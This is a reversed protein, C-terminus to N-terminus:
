YLHFLILTNGVWNSRVSFSQVYITSGLGLWGAEGPQALKEMMISHVGSLLLQWETHVRHNWSGPQFRTWSLHQRINAWEKRCSRRWQGWRWRMWLYDVSKSPPFKKTKRETYTIWCQKMQRGESEVTDSSAPISGLVTAVKINVALRELCNSLDWGCKALDWVCLKSIQSLVFRM